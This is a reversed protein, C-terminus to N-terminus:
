AMLDLSEALRQMEQRAPRDLYDAACDIVQRLADALEGREEHSTAEVLRAFAARSAAPLALGAYWSRAAIARAERGPAPLAPELCGSALRAAM